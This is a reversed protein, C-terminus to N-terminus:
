HAEILEKLQDLFVHSKAPKAYFDQHDFGQLVIIENTSFQSVLMSARSVIKDFEPIFLYKKYNGLRLQGGKKYHNLLEQENYVNIWEDESPVILSDAYGRVALSYWFMADHFRLRSGAATLISLPMIRDDPSKKFMPAYYFITSVDRTENLFKEAILQAHCVVFIHKVSNQYRAGAFAYFEQLSQDFSSQIDIINKNEQGKTIQSPNVFLINYDSLKNALTSWFQWVYAVSSFGDHIYILTNDSDRDFYYFHVSSTKYSASASSSFVSYSNAIWDVIENLQQARPRYLNQLNARSIGSTPSLEQYVIDGFREVFRKYDDATPRSYNQPNKLYNYYNTDFSSRRQSVPRLSICAAFLVITILLVLSLFVSTNGLLRNMM